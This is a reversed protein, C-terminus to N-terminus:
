GFDLLQNGLVGQGDCVQQRSTSEGQEKFVKNAVLHYTYFSSGARLFKTSKFGSESIVKTVALLIFVNWKWQM